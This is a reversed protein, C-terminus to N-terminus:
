PKTAREADKRKVLAQFEPIEAFYHAYIPDLAIEWETYGLAPELISEIMSWGASADGCQALALGMTQKARLEMAIEGSDLARYIAQYQNFASRDGSLCAMRAFDSYDNKPTNGPLPNGNGLLLNVGELARRARETSAAENGALALLESVQYDIYVNIWSTEPDRRSDKDALLQDVELEPLRMRDYMAGLFESGPNERRLIAMQEFYTETDGELRLSYTALNYRASQDEPFQETANRFTELAEDFRGAGILQFGLEGQMAPHQPDLNLAKQIMPLGLDYQGLRKYCSSISLILESNGPEHPLVKLFQALAKEYDREVTYFFKGLAYEALHHGPWKQMVQDTLTKAKQRYTGDPDSRTWVLRGYVEVLDTRAELFGSDLAVAEELLPLQQRFGEAALWSRDLERARQYLDYAALNQTPAEGMQQVQEPSMEVELQGAIQQAIESQIAFIDDLQRDFNEAWLHADTAADILQVTVRVRDGARRVSGELVHSVGLHKGIESIELGREAIRIMSTRSIVRLDAIRSLNTLVDEHVGGAFYANGEDESLNTFPLVAIGRALEPEPEPAPKGQTSQEGGVANVSEVPPSVNPGPSLRDFAVLAVVIGLAILTIKDLKQATEHTVSSSRDVESERKIWEPTLEYAWAVVLAVVFGLAIVAFFVSMVWGPADTHEIVLDLVQLLVWSAVAYAIGVRFVNRRKLEEFFSL